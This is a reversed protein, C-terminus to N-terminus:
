RAFEVKYVRYDGSQAVVPFQNWFADNVTLSTREEPSVLVYAVQYKQLLAAAQPSGAYIQHIDSERGLYALGRSWAQGPYGLLSRRGTLFVPPNYTPAHLVVAQPDTREAILRAIAVGDPDFERNAEGGSVVRALDLAGALTLSVLLVVSAGRLKGPTKWWSALLLAVLPASAVYWYFLV